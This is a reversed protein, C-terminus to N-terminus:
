ESTRSPFIAPSSPAPGDLGGRSAAACAIALGVVAATEFRLTRPGMSVPTFGSAIVSEREVPTLGGEPGVLLVLPEDKGLVEAAEAIPTGAEDALWRRSAVAASALAGTLDPIVELTPLRSGGCQKLAAVARRGARDVFGDSRGGDTVSRSREFEVFGISAVGLEVGKEVLWLCRERNGVPALLRTRAPERVAIIEGLEVEVGRRDLAVVRGARRLGSGDTVQIADGPRLRLSRAHAAEERDLTLASETRSLGTDFLTPPLTRPNNQAM